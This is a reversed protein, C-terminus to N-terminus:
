NGDNRCCVSIVDGGCSGSNSDPRCAYRLGTFRNTYEVFKIPPPSCEFVGQTCPNQDTVLSDVPGCNTDYITWRDGGDALHQVNGIGYNYGPCIANAQEALVLGLAVPLLLSSLSFSKM